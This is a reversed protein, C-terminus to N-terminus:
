SQLAAIMALAAERLEPDTFVGGAEQRQHFDGVEVHPEVVNAKFYIGSLMGRLGENAKAAKRGGPTVSVVGVPKDAWLERFEGRTSWNLANLVVAPFRGNHQPTFFVVAEADAIERRFSDVAPHGGAEEIQLSYFPLEALNTELVSTEVDADAALAEFQHLTTTNVSPESVSGSILLLRTM